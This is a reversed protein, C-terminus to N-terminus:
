KGQGIQWQYVPETHNLEWAGIVKEKYILPNHCSVTRANRWHRDLSKATSAASAGLANFLDSTAKLILESVIIQAKASEIEALINVSKVAEKDPNNHELYATQSSEATHTTINEAAYVRAAISGVVQQIQADDRVASANGHSYVRTRQRVEALLDRLAARGIGSLTSLLVLQYFATQYKFRNAFPLIDSEDVVANTFVARGSGTTKQGFGDWNDEVTVGQQHASVTVTVLSDPDDNLQATVDIWDAFISGTTYYKEGNLIWKGGQKTVKTKQQGIKTDGVETWANGAIEGESFRQLWADRWPSPSANLRDEVLAFHGRLAQSINSDAEALETLLRFLQPQSAGFGGKSKPVRLAGFKAAKLTKIQEYPLSSSQERVLVGEAIKAFIPRFLANLQQDDAGTSYEEFGINSTKKETNSM